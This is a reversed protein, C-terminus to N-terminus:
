NEQMKSIDGIQLILDGIATLLNLRNRKVADDEAMVMVDDFFIDVPEKMELMTELARTYKKDSIFKEMRSQVDVFLVHLKTEADEEFLSEVVETDENDKIINKIRKYSAALVNFSPEKRIDTFANIRELCDNIDEFTVTVVAEVTDGDLGSRVCDNVFRRRVFEVVKNATDESGDVKDGYLALAKHVLEKLSLKYGRGEIIHLIAL